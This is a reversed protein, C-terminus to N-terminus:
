CVQFYFLLLVIEFLRHEKSEVLALVLCELLQLSHLQHVILSNHLTLSNWKRVNNVQHRLYLINKVQVLNIKYELKLLKQIILKTLDGSFRVLSGWFYNFTYIIM